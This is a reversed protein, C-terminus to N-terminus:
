RGPRAPPCPPHPPRGHRAAPHKTPQQAVVQQVVRHQVLPGGFHTQILLDLSQRLRGLDLPKRLFTFFGAHQAAAAEDFTALGSMLIAPLPRVAALQQFLTLGNTGPLHFDLLSFDFRQRRAMRLAEDAQGTAGVDWGRSVLFEGLCSRLSEDDEVLLVRFSQFM